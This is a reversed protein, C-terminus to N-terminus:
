PRLMAPPSADAHSQWAQSCRLADEEEEEEETDERTAGCHATHGMAPPASRSVAWRSTQHWTSHMLQDRLQVVAQRAGHVLGHVDRQQVAAAARQAADQAAQAAAADLAHAPAAGLGEVHQAGEARGRAQEERAVVRVVLLDVVALRVERVHGRGAELHHVVRPALQGHGLLVQQLM